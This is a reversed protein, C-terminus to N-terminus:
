QRQHDDLTMKIWALSARKPGQKLEKVSSWRIYSIYDLYRWPRLGGQTQGWGLSESSTREQTRFCTRKEESPHGEKHAEGNLVSKVEELFFGGQLRLSEWFWTIAKWGNFDEKLLLHCRWSPTKHEPWESSQYWYGAPCSSTWKMKVKEPNFYLIREAKNKTCFTWLLWHGM